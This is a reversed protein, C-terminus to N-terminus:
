ENSELIQLVKKLADHWGDNKFNANRKTAGVIGIIKSNKLKMVQDRIEQTHSSLLSRILDRLEDVDTHEGYKLEEYALGGNINKIKDVFKEDFKKEWEKTNM